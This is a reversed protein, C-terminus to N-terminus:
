RVKKALEFARVCSSVPMEPLILGRQWAGSQILKKGCKNMAAHREQAAPFHPDSSEPTLMTQLLGHM